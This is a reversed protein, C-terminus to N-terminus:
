RDPVLFLRVGSDAAEGAQEEPANDAIVAPTVQVQMAAALTEARAKARRVDSSDATISAEFLAYRVPISRRDGTDPDGMEAIIIDCYLFNERGSPPRSRSARGRLGTGPEPM